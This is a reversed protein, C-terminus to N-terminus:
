NYRAIYESNKQIKITMFFLNAVESKLSTIEKMFCFIPVKRGLINYLQLVLNESTSLDKQIANYNKMYM